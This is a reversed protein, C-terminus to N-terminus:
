KPLPLLLSPPKDLHVLYNCLNTWLCHCSATTKWFGLVVVRWGVGCQSFFSLQFCWLLMHFHYRKRERIKFCLRKWYGSFSPTLEFLCPTMCFVDSHKEYKRNTKPVTIIFHVDVFMASVQFSKQEETLQLFTLFLLSIHCLFLNTNQKTKNKPENVLWVAWSFFTRYLYLSIHAFHGACYSCMRSHDRFTPKRKERKISCSFM